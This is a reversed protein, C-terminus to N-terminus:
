ASTPERATADAVEAALSTGAIKLLSGKRKAERSGPFLKEVTKQTAKLKVEVGPWIEGLSVYRYSPLGARHKAPDNGLFFSVKTQLEEEGRIAKVKGGVWRESLVWSQAACPKFHAADKSTQPKLCDQQKSTVHLLKGDKSVWTTGFYGPASFAARKDWQGANAVWGRELASLREAQQATLKSSTAGPPLAALAQGLLLGFVMLGLGKGLIVRRAFTLARLNTM